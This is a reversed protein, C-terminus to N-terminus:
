RDNFYYWYVKGIYISQLWPQGPSLFPFLENKLIPQYFLKNWLMIIFIIRAIQHRGISGDRINYERLGCSISGDCPSDPSCNSSDHCANNHTYEYTAAIIWHHGLVPSSVGREVCIPMSVSIMGNNILIGKYEDAEIELLWIYKFFREFFLSEVALM